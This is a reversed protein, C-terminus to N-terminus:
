LFFFFEAEAIKRLNNTKTKMPLYFKYINFYNEM